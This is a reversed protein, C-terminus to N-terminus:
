LQDIWITEEVVKGQAANEAVNITELMHEVTIDTGALGGIFSTVPIKKQLFPVTAMIEQWLFGRNWGFNVSRDVVSVAKVKSLTQILANVPFPRFTKIKILGVKQGKERAVDVADKGAGTMSGIVVIAYEADDFRYEEILPAFDHGTMEKWERHVEPIVRLANQMGKCQGRRYRSFMAGGEPTLGTLPDIGMPREPDLAAHWNVNKEGLFRDVIDQDVIEVPEAAYSLFNGDFCVNVPLMVDHNEAIKYAMVVTDTIEQNNECHMHIWGVEKVTMADQQGGWVCQPTIGDRCVIGMVIPIRFNPCRFYPEFMFALGQGCSATFTRAGAFAAGQLVSLVSHEGEVDMLDAQLEGDAIFTSLAEAVGSQPTIPYVAVTDVKALRAGWAAAENGDLVIKEPM